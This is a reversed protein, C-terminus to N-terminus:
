RSNPQGVIGISLLTMFSSVLALAMSPLLVADLPALM